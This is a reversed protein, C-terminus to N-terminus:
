SREDLLRGEDETRPSIVHSLEAGRRLHRLRRSMDATPTTPQYPGARRRRDDANADTSRIGSSSGFPLHPGDRVISPQRVSRRPRLPPAQRPPLHRNVDAMCGAVVSTATTFFAISRYIDMTSLITAFCDMVDLLIIIESRSM